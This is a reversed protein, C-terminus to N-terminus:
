IEQFILVSEYFFSKMEKWIGYKTKRNKGWRYSKGRLKKFLDSLLISDPLSLFTEKIFTHKNKLFYSPFLSKYAM